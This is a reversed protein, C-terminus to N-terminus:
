PTLQLGGGGGSGVRQTSQTQPLSESPPASPAVRVKKEEGRLRAVAIWPDGIPESPDHGYALGLATTQSKQSKSYNNATSVVYYLKEREPIYVTRGVQLDPRMNYVMSGSRLEANKRKLAAEAYADVIELEKLTGLILNPLDLHRVGFRTEEEFSVIAFGHLKDPQFNAGKLLNFNFGSPAVIQTLFNAEDEKFRWSLLGEDGLIYSPGHFQQFDSTDISLKGDRLEARGEDHETNFVSLGPLNDVIQPQYIINGAGDQFFEAWTTKVVHRIITMAPRVDNQFLDFVSRIVKQYITTAREMDRHILLHPAKLYVNRKDADTAFDDYERVNSGLTPVAGNFTRFFENGAEPVQWIKNDLFFDLKQREVEVIGLAEDAGERTLSLNVRKIIDSMISDNSKGNYINSLVQNNLLKSRGTNIARRQSEESGGAHTPTATTPSTLIIPTLELYRTLASCGLTLAVSGGVVMSDEVSSILGTFGAYYREDRGRFDVWIRTMMGLVSLNKTLFDLQTAKLQDLAKPNSQRVLNSFRQADDSLERILDLDVVNKVYGITDRIRAARRSFKDQVNPITITATGVSRTSLSVNINDFEVIEEIRSNVSGPNALIFVRADPFLDAM